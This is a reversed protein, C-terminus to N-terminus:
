QLLTDVDLLGEDVVDNLLQFLQIDLIVLHFYLIELYSIVLDDRNDLGDRLRDFCFGELHLLDDIVNLNFVM